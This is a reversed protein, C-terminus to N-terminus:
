SASASNFELKRAADMSPDKVPEQMQPADSFKLTNPAETQSPSQQATAADAPQVTGDTSVSFTARQSGSADSSQVTGDSSVTFAAASPEAQTPEPAPQADAASQEAAAKAQERQDMKYAERAFAVGAGVFSLSPIAGVITGVLFGAMALQDQVPAKTRAANVVDKVADAISLLSLANGVIPLAKMFIKSNAALKAAAPLTPSGSKLVQEAVRAGAAVVQAIAFSPGQKERIGFLAADMVHAGYPGAVEEAVSMLAEDIQGNAALPLSAGAAAALKTGKLAAAEVVTPIAQEFVAKTNASQAFSRLSEKAIDKVSKDNEGWLSKAASRVTELFPARLEKFIGTASQQAAAKLGDFRDNRAANEAPAPQEAKTSESPASGSNSDVKSSGSANRLNLTISM